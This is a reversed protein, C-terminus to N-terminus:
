SAAREQAPVQVSSHDLVLEDHVFIRDADLIMVFGKEAPGLGRLYERKVGTGISPPTQIEDGGFEVVQKVADAMVGVVLNEGDIRIELIVICTSKTIPIEGQGFRVALDVVPVVCGRLNMVGRIFSATEPLRTLPTHAIIEKVRLIEVAYEEGGMFFSLYQNRDNRAEM